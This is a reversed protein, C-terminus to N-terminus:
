KESPIKSICYYSQETSFGSKENIYQRIGVDCFNRTGCGIVVASINEGPSHPINSIANEILGTLVDQSKKSAENSIPETTQTTQVVCKDEDGTCKITKSLNCTETGDSVCSPCEKGNLKSSSKPLTPLTPTCNDTSCCSIATKLHMEKNTISGKVVCNQQPVCYRMYIEEYDEDDYIKVYSVGCVSGPPCTVSSGTCSTSNINSCVTCSLSYGSAVLAFLIGVIGFLSSM